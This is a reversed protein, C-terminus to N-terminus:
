LTFPRVPGPWLSRRRAPASSRYRAPPTSTSASRVSWDIGARPFICRATGAMVAKEVAATDDAEGDGVAGFDKVTPGTPALLLARMSAAEESLEADSVVATGVLLLAVVVFNVRLM